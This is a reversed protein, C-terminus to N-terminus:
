LFILYSCFLFGKMRGTEKDTVLRVDIPYFNNDNFFSIVSEKSSSYSVNKLYLTDSAASSSSSSSSSYSQASKRNDFNPTKNSVISKRPNPNIIEEKQVTITSSSLKSKLANFLTQL